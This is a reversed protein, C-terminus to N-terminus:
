DANLAPDPIREFCDDPVRKKKRLLATAKVFRNTVPDHYGSADLPDKGEEAYYRVIRGMLVERMWKGVMSAMAVMLDTADADRVFAISGVGPFRYESRPAGEEVVAHLRGELPGGFASSYRTYGGVKGCIAHVDGEAQERAHVIIREMSHLDVDFRSLGNRRAENLKKTCVVLTRAELVEVGKSALRDLDDAMTAVLKADASFTENDLSGWCQDTVHSPCPKRMADRDDLSLAHVLEDPHAFSLGMRAGIARAWAEGLAVDGHAVLAKSDGL